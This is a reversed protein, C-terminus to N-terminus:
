PWDEAPTLFSGGTLIALKWFASPAIPDGEMPFLIVNVPARTPIQLIAKDFLKLRQKATITRRKSPTEGQTPLSDTLLIVNDPPPRMERLAKLGKYLNTGGAPAMGRVQAVTADLMQRDSSDLWRGGTGPLVPGAKEAFHYIQYQSDRPFQTTLWDVTKVAQRWKKARIKELDPLNRFRIVNVLTDALMSASSDLLIFIRKGGVKLGTLYQRDGDGIFARVREGPVETSPTGGSLRKAGGELSKLDAKLRNIHERSAITTDEYTALEVRIEELNQILRSSLGSAAIIQREIELLSNRLEVLNQHDQLVEVELLNVEARRDHTVQEARLGVNANIIMFLLIVAGFGCTIADLFSLGIPNVARRSGARRNAM